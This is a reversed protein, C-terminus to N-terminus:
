KVRKSRGGRTIPTAASRWNFAPATACRSERRCPMREACHRSMSRFACAPASERGRAYVRPFRPAGDRLQVMGAVITLDQCGLRVSQVSTAHHLTRM